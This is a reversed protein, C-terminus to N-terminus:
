VAVYYFSDSRGEGVIQMAQDLHQRAVPYAGVFKYATAMNLHRIFLSEKHDQPTKTM